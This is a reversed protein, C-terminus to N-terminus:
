MQAVFVPFRLMQTKRKKKRHLPLSFLFHEEGCGGGEGPEPGFSPLFSPPRLPPPSSAPDTPIAPTCPVSASYNLEEEALSVAKHEPICVCVCDCVHVCM